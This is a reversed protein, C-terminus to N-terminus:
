KRAEQPIKRLMMKVTQVPIRQSITGPLGVGGGRARTEPYAIRSLNQFFYENLFLSNVNTTFIDQTSALCSCLFMTDDSCEDLVIEKILIKVHFTVSGKIKNSEKASLFEEYGWWTSKRCSGYDHSFPIGQKIQCISKTTTDINALLKTVKTGSVAQVNLYLGVSATNDTDEKARALDENSSLNTGESPDIKIKFSFGNLSKRAIITKSHNKQHLSIM